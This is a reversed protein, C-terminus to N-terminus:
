RTVKVTVPKHKGYAIDVETVDEPLPEYLAVQRPPDTENFLGHGSCICIVEYGEAMWQEKTGRDVTVPLYAPASGGTDNASYLTTHATRNKMDIVAVNAGHEGHPFEADVNGGWGDVVAASNGGKAHPMWGASYYVATGEAVRRVGHLTVLVDGDGAAHKSGSLAPNSVSQGLVPVEPETEAQAPAGLAFTVALAAIAAGGRRTTGSWM